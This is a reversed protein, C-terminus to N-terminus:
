TAAQWGLAMAPGNTNGSILGPMVSCDAVASRGRGARLRADVVAAADSGMRCTAVAHLGSRSLLRFKQLIDRRQRGQAGPNFEDGVLAGARSACTAKECRACWPWPPRRTTRTTSSGTRASRPGSTRTPSRLRITGESTLALYQGCITLGPERGVTTLACRQQRQQRGDHLRRTCKRTPAPRPRTAACPVSRSPGPRCRGPMLASTSCGPELWGPGRYRWNNGAAGSLRCAVVFSLHDRLHAGRGSCDAVLLGLSQLLAHPGIGSPQLIKPSMLAGASLIVEQRARFVQWAASVCRSVSARRNEILVRDVLAGTM